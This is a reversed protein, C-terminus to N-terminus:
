IQEKQGHYSFGRNYIRFHSGISIRLDSVKVGFRSRFILKWFTRPESESLSISLYSKFIRRQLGFIRDSAPECIRSKTESLSTSFNTELTRRFDELAGVGARLNGTIDGQTRTGFSFNTFRETTLKLHAVRAVFALSFM